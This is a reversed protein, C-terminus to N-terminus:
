VSLMGADAWEKDTVLLSGAEPHDPNNELRFIRDTGPDLPADELPQWDILGRVRVRVDKVARVGAVEQIAAELALRSLPTAFTFRSPDFFRV